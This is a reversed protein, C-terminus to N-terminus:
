VGKTRYIHKYREDIYMLQKGCMPCKWPHKAITVGLYRAYHDSGVSIVNLNGDMAKKLQLPYYAFALHTPCRWTGYGADGYKDDMIKFVTNVLQLKRGCIVCQKCKDISDAAKIIDGTFTSKFVFPIKCNICKYLISINTVLMLREWVINPHSYPTLVGPCVARYMTSVDGTRNISLYNSKFWRGSLMGVEYTFKVCKGEMISAM